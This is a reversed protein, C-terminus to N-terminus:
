PALQWSFALWLLVVQVLAFAALVAGRGWRSRRNALVWAFPWAVALFRPSSMWSTSIFVTAIALVAVTAYPLPIRDPRFYVLLFTYFGLVGLWLPMM